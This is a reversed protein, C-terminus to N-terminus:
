LTAERSFIGSSVTIPLGQTRTVSLSIQIFTIATNVNTTQLNKDLFSFTIGSIPQCLVQATQGNQSRLLQTGRQSYNIANGQYDVFAIQTALASSFSQAQRLERSMRELAMDAAMTSELVEKATQQALFSQVIVQAGVTSVIGIILIVLVVEIITFGKQVKAMGFRWPQQLVEQELFLRKFPKLKLRGM